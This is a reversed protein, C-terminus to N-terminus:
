IKVYRWVSLHANFYSSYFDRATALSLDVRLSQKYSFDVISMFKYNNGMSTGSGIGPENRESWQTWSFLDMSMAPNGDVWITITFAAMDANNGFDIGTRIKHVLGAESTVSIATITFPDVHIPYTGPNLFQNAEAPAYPRLATFGSNADVYAKNAIDNAVAPATVQARGNGDRVMYANATPAPTAGTVGACTGAATIYGVDNTWASIATPKDTVSTWAITTPLGTIKSAALGTIWTPDNYSGTTYVGNTVTAANGSCDGLLTATINRAAFDGNSDRLAVTNPVNATSPTYAGGGGGGSIGDLKIKDTASMFGNNSPSANPHVHAYLYLKDSSSM